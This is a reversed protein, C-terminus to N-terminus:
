WSGGADGAPGGANEVRRVEVLLGEDLEAYATGAVRLRRALSALERELVLRQHEFDGLLTGLAGQARGDGLSWGLERGRQATGAVDEAVHELGGALADLAAPSVVIRTMVGLSPPFAAVGEANDV